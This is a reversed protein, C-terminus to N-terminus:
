EGVGLYDMLMRAKEGSTDEIEGHGRWLGLTFGKDPALTLNRYAILQLPGPNIPDNLSMDMWTRVQIRRAFYAIDFYALTQEFMMDSTMGEPPDFTGNALYKSNLLDFRVRGPISASAFAFRPELAAAALTMSGGQSGGAVMIRDPDVMPLTRLFDFARVPVLYAHRYFYTDRDRLGEAQYPTESWFEQPHHRGSEGGFPLDHVSLILAVWGRDPYKRDVPGSGYGAGPCTVIAPVRAGQPLDPPIALFGRIRRGNLGNFTVVQYPEPVQRRDEPETIEPALPQARLAALTYLWFADFDKPERDPPRWDHFNHMLVGSVRKVTGGTSAEVTFCYPGPGPSHLTRTVTHTGRPPLIVSMNEADLDAGPGAPQYDQLKVTYEVTVSEAGENILTVPLELGGEPFLHHTPMASFDFKLLDAPEPRARAILKLHHGEPYIFIGMNRTDVQLFTRNLTELTRGERTIFRAGDTHNLHRDVPVTYTQGGTRPFVAWQVGDALPFMWRQVATQSRQRFYLHVGGADAVVRLTRDGDDGKLEGPAATWLGPGDLYGETQPRMLPEDRVAFGQVGGSSDIEFTYLQTAVRFGGDALAEFEPSTEAEAHLLAAPGLCGFSLLVSLIRSYM